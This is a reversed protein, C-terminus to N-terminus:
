IEFQPIRISNSELFVQRLKGFIMLLRTRIDEGERGTQAKITKEGSQRGLTANDTRRGRGLDKFFKLLM